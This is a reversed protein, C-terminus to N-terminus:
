KPLKAAALDLEVHRVTLDEPDTSIDFGLQRCMALMGTNEALVSGVIRKLGNAKAYDLLQGMLLSGLGKGKLDSRVLIAYEATEFDPDASFRSVGLLEGDSGLAVFAIERAYDIQTLRAVFQHSLSAKPAFFRLRIDEPNLRRAFTEYLREDEPRIPRVTIPGLVGHALRREWEVPYPRISLPVRPTRVADAIRVRADLAIVGKDDALLPNIDLERIEPHAVVLASLSVLAAAVADLNAPARDRYGRLLRAIRTEAILDRALKMDLPPLALAIDHMVEAATGGAGFMLMPGFTADVTMGLILEHATRRVVMPSLTFREVAAGPKLQAIRQRMERTVGLAERASAVNLRVGGVDSKHSFADSLIKVAISGHRAILRAAEREIEDDSGVIVTEVVPIGYAGLMRKGEVESLMERGDALAQTIAARVPGVDFTLDAPLAPPTQMLAEQARNYAVLHMYSRAASAPTEFSPIAHAAFLRRAERAAEDGLWNTLVPISRTAHMRHTEVVQVVREAIATSSALATPCNMVLLAETAKDRLLIDLAAAFREPPADGIIDVPNAHSWNAPLEKDLALRTAESLSALRGDDDGLRDAALVGAGGGNTLITLREGSLRPVKSLMEAAEFLESLERVRLLGARRFAAAYAADSGAMRGTHSAAAKAAAAHRGSKVIIVPKVRAARRAASMFKAASTVAEMYILIARSRRDGALFDLLDGFDVDSMDGLSVAHSFGIGRGGAWDIIATLLAGSQSLLAIDGTKAFRHSFTADLGIDPRMLGICNPGQIRFCTPRAADLMRQRTAADLGATIVVAARTGKGALEAVVGPITAPPTAIVALDPAQPLAAISRHCPHGAVSAHKPNVFEVSGKFGGALLNRAVTAGISGARDSAGILAVSKPELLFELNRITM